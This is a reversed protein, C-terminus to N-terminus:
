ILNLVIINFVKRTRRTLKIVLRSISAKMDFPQQYLPFQSTRRPHNSEYMNSAVFPDMRDIFHGHHHSSGQYYMNPGGQMPISSQSLVSILQFLKNQVKVQLHSKVHAISLGRVNMLQLVLKPTAREQGGLREVAHVFSLHLDPTWRLRPMKSRVYQRITSSRAIGDVTENNQSSTDSTMTKDAADSTPDAGETTSEDEESSANENLDFSSFKQSSLPSPNQAENDSGISEERDASVQLREAM